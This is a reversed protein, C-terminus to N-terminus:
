PIGGKNGNTGAGSQGLSTFGTLILIQYFYKFHMVSHLVMIKNRTLKKVGANEPPQERIDSQCCTKKKRIELVGRLIKTSRLLTTTQITETRGKTGIGKELGKFITGLAGVMIPIVTVWM